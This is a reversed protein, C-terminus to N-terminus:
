GFEGAGEHIVMRWVVQHHRKEGTDILELGDVIQNRRDRLWNGITRGNVGAPSAIAAELAEWLGVSKSSGPYSPVADKALFPKTGFVQHLNYFVDGVTQRVPDNEELQRMTDLPDDLGLWILPERIRRSWADFSGFSSTKVKDDAKHYAILITLLDRVLEKRHEKVYEIFNIKFTRTYPREMRADLACQLSRRILDGKVVVNNGDALMLVNTNVTGTESAGLIRSKYYPQTLIVCFAAGKLHTDVNDIVIVPAGELLTAFLTKEMETESFKYTLSHANDGTAIISCMDTLMSKGTGKEPATIIFMPASPLPRRSVSTLSAALIVSESAGDKFPFEDMPSRIRALAELADKKSPSQPIPPFDGDMDLYFGSAPDYGPTEILTMDGRLTPINVIGNLVPIVSPANSALFEKVISAPCASLYARYPEGDEGKKIQYFSIFRSLCSALNDKTVLCVRRIHKGAREVRVIQVLRGDQRFLDTLGSLTQEAVIRDIQELVEHIPLGANIEEKMPKILASPADDFNPEGLPPCEDGRMAAEIANGPEVATPGTAPRSARNLADLVDEADQRSMRMGQRKAASNALSPKLRIFKKTPPAVLAEGEDCSGGQETDAQGEGDGADLIEEYDHAEPVVLGHIAADALTMEDLVTTM